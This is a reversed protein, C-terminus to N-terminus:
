ITIISFNSPCRNRDILRLINEIRTLKVHHKRLIAPIWPEDWIRNIMIVDSYGLAVLNLLILRLSHFGFIFPHFEIFLRPHFTRITNWAGNLAAIEGGEIDMRIITPSIDLRDGFFDDLRISNVAIKRNAKIKRHYVLSGWNPVESEFFSVLDNEDSVAVKHSSIVDDLGNEYINRQLVDYNSTLPEFCVVRGTGHTAMYARLAYYGINSGIDVIVDNNRIVRCYQTSAEPEHINYILLVESIGHLSPHLNFRYPGLQITPVAGTKRVNQVARVRARQWKLNFFWRIAIKTTSIIGRNRINKQLKEIYLTM